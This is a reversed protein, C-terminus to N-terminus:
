GGSERLHLAVNSKDFNIETSHVGDNVCREDGRGELVSMLFSLCFFVLGFSNHQMLEDLPATSLRPLPSTDSRGGPKWYASSLRM